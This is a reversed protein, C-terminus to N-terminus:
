FLPRKNPNQTGSKLKILDEGSGPKLNQILYLAPNFRQPDEGCLLEQLTEQVMQKIMLDQKRPYFDLHTQKMLEQGKRRFDEPLQMDAVVM